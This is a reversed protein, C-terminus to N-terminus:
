VHPLQWHLAGGEALRRGEVEPQEQGRSDSRGEADARNRDEFEGPGRRHPNRALGWQLIASKPNRITSKSVSIQWGFNSIAPHVKMCDGCASPRPECERCAPPLAQCRPPHASLFPLNKRGGSSRM